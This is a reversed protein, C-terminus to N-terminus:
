QLQELAITLCKLLISYTTHLNYWSWATQKQTQKQRDKTVAYVTTERPRTTQILVSALHMITAITTQLKYAYNAKTQRDM